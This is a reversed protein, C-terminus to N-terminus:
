GAPGVKPTLLQYGVFTIIWGILMVVWFLQPLGLRAASGASSIVLIGGALWLNGYLFRKATAKRITKWASVFAVIAVCVAGFTNLAILPILWAGELIIGTGAGGDLRQLATTSISSELLSVSGVLGVLAVIVAIFIVRRRPIVLALSGLGMLCPMWMAGM